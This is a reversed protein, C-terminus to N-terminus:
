LGFRNIYPQSRSVNKKATSVFKQVNAEFGQENAVSVEARKCSNPRRSFSQGQFDRLFQAAFEATRFNVFAYGMCMDGRRTMPMQLFDVDDCVARVDEVLWEQSYKCPINKIMLTTFEADYSKFSSCPSVDSM